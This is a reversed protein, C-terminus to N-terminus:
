SAYVTDPYGFVRGEIAGAPADEALELYLASEEPTLRRIYEGTRYDYLSMCPAAPAATNTTNTM